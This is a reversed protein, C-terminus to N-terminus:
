IRSQIRKQFSKVIFTARDQIILRSLISHQSRPIELSSNIRYYVPNSIYGGSVTTRMCYFLYKRFYFLVYFLIICVSM